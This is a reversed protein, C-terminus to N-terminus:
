FQLCVDQLFHLYIHIKRNLKYCTCINTLCNYYILTWQNKLMATKESENKPLAQIMFPLSLEMFNEGEKKFFPIYLYIDRKFNKNKM